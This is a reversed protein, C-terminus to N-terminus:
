KRFFIIYIIVLVVLALIVTGGEPSSNWILKGLKEIM